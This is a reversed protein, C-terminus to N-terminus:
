LVRSSNRAIRRSFAASRSSLSHHRSDTPLAEPAADPQLMVSIPAVKARSGSSGRTPLIRIAARASFQKRSPSRSQRPVSWGSGSPVAPPCAPAPRILCVRLPLIRARIEVEHSRSQCARSAALVLAFPDVFATRFNAFPFKRFKRRSMSHSSGAGRSENQASSNATPSARRFDCIGLDQPSNQRPNQVLRNQSRDWAVDPHALCFFALTILACPVSLKKNVRCGAQLFWDGSHTIAKSTTSVARIKARLTALM